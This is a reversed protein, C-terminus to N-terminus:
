IARALHSFLPVLDRYDCDERTAELIMLARDLDSETKLMFSLDTHDLMKPLPVMRTAFAEPMSALLQSLSRSDSSSGFERVLQKLVRRHCIDGALGAGQEVMSSSSLSMFTVVDCKPEGWATALLRDVLMSDVFVSTPRVAVIWQAGLEDAAHWARAASTAENTPLWVAPETCSQAIMGTFENDGVIAIGDLLSSESLRRVTRELLTQRGVRRFPSVAREQPGQNAWGGLDILAISNSKQSM